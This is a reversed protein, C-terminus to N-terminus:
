LRRPPQLDSELIPPPDAATTEAEFRERGAATNLAVTLVRKDDDRIRIRCVVGRSQLSGDPADFYIDRHFSRTTAGSRLGLPLRHAALRRLIDASSVTCRFWPRSSLKM